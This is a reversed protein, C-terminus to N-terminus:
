ENDKKFPADKQMREIREKLNAGFEPEDDDTDRGVSPEVREIPALERDLRLDVKKPILKRRIFRRTLLYSTHIARAIVLAFVFLAIALAPFIVKGVICLDQYWQIISQLFAGADASM